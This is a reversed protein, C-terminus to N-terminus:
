DRDDYLFRVTVVTGRDVATGAAISQYTARAYETDSIAYNQSGEIKINLGRSILIQNAETVSKGLLDPVVSTQTSTYETYLVVTGMNKTLATGSYPTQATIIEDDKASGADCTLGLKKILAKAEGVTKGVYNGINVSMSALQKDTYNPEYGLYPMIKSLLDSIYPAAVTAGYYNVIPEDVVILVAVSANDYPAYAVCSGIRLTYNGNADAKDLKESTGTKAAIRYGAVYANKSAGTGSVGEELIASVTAAASESIIQRKIETEYKYVANGDEDVLSDILYGGNAVACIATLQQLPTVKFRQGFSAVALEVSGLGSKAHFITTSESPLDIGTKELYGFDGFYKYFNDTGIREALQMLTPNCSQQLGYSFTIGHGHANPSRWCKIQVGGVIHYGACSFSADTSNTKGLEIGMSATIIKFTSGPEYLESVAKNRWMDYLLSTKYTNYEESGAEYGSSELKAQSLEDLTYPNNSNFPSSTAMALVAGTNVDMVIGVARNQVKFESVIEALENELERQIYSDITTVLSLGDVAPIVSSYDYPIENSHADVATIYKGDTGTLDDDYYMELGFLGQNDNGTFGLVHSALTGYPYYRTTSAQMYIMRSLGNEVIFELVKEHTKDNIEKVITEDLRNTKQTKEYIFDYSVGTIESLGRSILDAYDTDFKESHEKIDKPSIFLRWVTKNTALLNMNSDYINGREATLTSSVTIQDIVEKQYYDYKVTQMYLIKGLLFLMFIGMCLLIISVRKETIHSTDKKPTNRKCNM